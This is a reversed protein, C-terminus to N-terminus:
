FTTHSTYARTRKPTSSTRVKEFDIGEQLGKRLREEGTVEAQPIPGGPPPAAKRAYGKSELAKPAVAAPAKGPESSDSSPSTQTAPSKQAWSKPKVSTSHGWLSSMDVQKPPTNAKADPPKGDASSSAGRVHCAYVRLGRQLISRGDVIGGTGQYRCLTALAHKALASSSTAM